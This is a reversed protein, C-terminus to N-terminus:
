PKPAAAKAGFFGSLEDFGREAQYQDYPKLLWGPWNDHEGYIHKLYEGVGLVQEPSYIGKRAAYMIRRFKKKLRRKIHIKNDVLTLGLLHPVTKGLNDRTKEQKVQFGYKTPVALLEKKLEPSIESAAFNFDDVYVNWKVDMKQCIAEMEDCMPKYVLNLFVPSCSAGQPLRRARQYYYTVLTALVDSVAENIDLKKLSAKVMQITISPFANVVDFGVFHKNGQLAQVAKKPNKNKVFGFANRHATNAAELWNKIGKFITQVDPHPALIERKKEKKTLFFTRFGYHFGRKIPKGKELIDAELRPDQLIKFARRLHKKPIGLLETLMRLTWKFKIEFSINSLPKLEHKEAVM